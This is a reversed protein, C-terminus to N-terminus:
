VLRGLGKDADIQMEKTKPGMYKQATMLIHKDNGLIELTTISFINLLYQDKCTSVEEFYAFIKNLLEIDDDKSLLKIVEPMFIDEIIITDLGRYDDQRYEWYKDKAAPFFKLMNEFFIDLSSNM